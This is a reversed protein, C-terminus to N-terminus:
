YEEEHNRGLQRRLLIGGHQIVEDGLVGVTGVAIHTAGGMPYGGRLVFVGHSLYGSVHVFGQVDGRLFVIGAELTGLQYVAIHQGIGLRRVAIPAHVFGQLLNAFGDPEIRQGDIRLQFAVNEKGFLIIGGSQGSVFCDVARFQSRRGGEETSGLGFFHQFCRGRFDQCQHVAADGSARLGVRFRGGGVQQCTGLRQESGILRPLRHQIIIGIEIGHVAIDIGGEIVIAFLGGDLGTLVLAGQVVEGFGDFQSGLFQEVAGFQGHHVDAHPATFFGDAHQLFGQFYLRFVRFGVAQHSM